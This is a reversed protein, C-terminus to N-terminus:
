KVEERRGDGGGGKKREREWSEGGVRRENRRREKGKRGEVRELEGEMMKRRRERDNEEGNMNRSSHGSLSKIVNRVLDEPVDGLSTAGFGTERQRSPHVSVDSSSSPFLDRSDGGGGFRSM